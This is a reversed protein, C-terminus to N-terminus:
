ENRIINVVEGTSRRSHYVMCASFALLYPLLPLRFRSAGLPGTALAIGLVLALAYSKVQRPCGTKRLLFGAFGAILVINVALVATLYVIVATPMDRLVRVAGAMGDTSLGSLFGDRTQEHLFQSIDFRGPDIFFLLVGRLHFVSYPLLNRLLVQRCSSDSIAVRRTYAAGSSAEEIRATFGEAADKGEAGSLFYYTNYERLAISSISSFHYDGTQHYNRVSWGCLVLIPVCSLLVFSRTRRRYSLYAGFALNPLWFLVMVPKTLMALCLAANFALTSRTGAIGSSVVFLMFLLEGQLLVESMVLHTYILQSPYFLYLTSAALRFRHPVGLNRLTGYLLTFGAGNLLIQLWIVAETSDHISRAGLIMLPYLPPRKSYLEESRKDALSGAYLVGAERLNAAAALYEHSDNTLRVHPHQSTHLLLLIHLAFACVLVIIVHTLERRPLSTM